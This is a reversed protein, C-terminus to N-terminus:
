VCINSQNDRDGWKKLANKPDKIWAAQIVWGVLFSKQETSNPSMTRLAPTFLSWVEAECIEACMLSKLCSAFMKWLTLPNSSIM